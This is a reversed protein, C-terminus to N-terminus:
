VTLNRKVSCRIKELDRKISRETRNLLRSCEIMSKGDLYFMKALPYQSAGLIEYLAMNINEPMTTEVNSVKEFKFYTKIDLDKNYVQEEPIEIKSCLRFTLTDGTMKYVLDKLCYKFGKYISTYKVVSQLLALKVVAEVDEKEYSSRISKSLLDSYKKYDKGFFSIFQRQEPNERIFYGNYLLDVFKDTFPAFIQVLQEGSYSDGKIFNEKLTKIDNM